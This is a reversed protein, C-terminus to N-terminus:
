LLPPRTDTDILTNISMKGPKCSQTGHVQNMARHCTLHLHVVKLYTDESSTTQMIQRQKRGAVFLCFGGGRSTPCVSLSLGIAGRGLGERPIGSFIPPCITLCLFTYLSLSFFRWALISTSYMCSVCIDGDEEKRKRDGLLGQRWRPRAFHSRFRFIVHSQTDFKCSIIIRRLVLAVM